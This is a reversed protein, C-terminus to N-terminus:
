DPILVDMLTAGSQEIHSAGEISVPTWPLLQLRNKAIPQLTHECIGYPIPKGTQIKRIARDIQWLLEEENGMAGLSIEQLDLDSGRDAQHTPATHGDEADMADKFLDTIDQQIEERRERLVELYKELEKAPIPSKKPLQTVAM